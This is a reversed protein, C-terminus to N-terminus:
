PAKQQTESPSVSPPPEYFYRHIILAAILGMSFVLATRGFMRNADPHAAEEILLPLSIAEPVPDNTAGLADLIRTREKRLATLKLANNAMHARVAAGLLVAVLYFGWFRLSSLRGGQLVAVSAVVAMGSLGSRFASWNRNRWFVIENRNDELLALLITLRETRQGADLVTPTTAQPTASEVGANM